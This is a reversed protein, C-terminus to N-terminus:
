TKRHMFQRGKDYYPILKIAEEKLITKKIFLLTNQRYDMSIKNNLIIKSRMLDVAVYGRKEFKEVWFNHWQENIHNEGEQKPIAASFLIKNSLRTLNEVFIDSYRTEIHEAVELSIAIDFKKGLKLPKRLDHRFFERESILPKISHFDIGLINKVGFEKFAKLWTGSGCGLDVVSKPNFISIIMPVMEKASNYSPLYNKNFFFKEDYFHSDSDNMKNKYTPAAM